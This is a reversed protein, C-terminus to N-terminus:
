WRRPPTSQFVLRRNLYCFPNLTVVKPTTHISIESVSNCPSDVATVVKPTTHISIRREALGYRVAVTVVKPTTHISIVTSAFLVILWGTVVKPTTHISIKNRDLAQGRRVDGGEPHHPNFDHTEKLRTLQMM